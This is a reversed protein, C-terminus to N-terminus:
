ENWGKSASSVFLASRYTVVAANFVHVGFRIDVNAVVPADSGFFLGPGLRYQDFLAPYLLIYFM